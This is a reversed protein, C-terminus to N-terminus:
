SITKDKTITRHNIVGKPPVCASTLVTPRDSINLAEKRRNRLLFISGVGGIIMTSSVILRLSIQESLILVGGTAAIVPVLLQAIAARTATLDRLLDGSVFPIGMFATAM